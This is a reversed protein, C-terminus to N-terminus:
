INHRYQTVSYLPYHGGPVSLKSNEPNKTCMAIIHIRINCLEDMWKQLAKAGVM